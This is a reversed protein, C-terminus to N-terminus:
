AYAIKNSWIKERSIKKEWNLSEVHCYDNCFIKIVIDYFLAPTPSKYINLAETYNRLSQDGKSCIM